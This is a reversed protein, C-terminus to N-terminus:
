SITLGWWREVHSAPGESLASNGNEKVNVFEWKM